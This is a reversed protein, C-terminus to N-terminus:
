LNEAVSIVAMVSGTNDKVPILEQNYYADRKIYKAKLIQIRQGKFARKLNNLREDGKVYPFLDELKKGIAHERKIKFLYECNRNWFIIRHNPDLASIIWKPHHLMEDESLHLVASLAVM